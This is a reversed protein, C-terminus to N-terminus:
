YLSQLAKSSVSRWTLPKTKEQNRSFVSFVFAEESVRQSVGWVARDCISFEIENVLEIRNSLKFAYLADGSIKTQNCDVRLQWFKELRLVFNWLNSKLKFNLLLIYSSCAIKVRFVFKAICVLRYLIQILINKAAKCKQQGNELSRQLFKFINPGSDPAHSYLWELQDLCASMWASRGQSITLTLVWIWSVTQIQGNYKRERGNEFTERTNEREAM